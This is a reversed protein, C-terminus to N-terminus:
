LPVHEGACAPDRQYAEKLVRVIRPATRGDWLPPRIPTPRDHNHNANELTELASLLLQQPDCGVVRNTGVSVTVPRETNERYTLCPVGLFTTEEQVGGSDTIVMVAHRILDLFDLYSAPPMMWLGRSPLLGGKWVRVASPGAAEGAAEINRATRPHAPFVVPIREAIEAIAELTRKLEDGHDVNSPRHLTLVVYPKARLGLESRLSSPRAIKLARVLSDIMLNGVFFVKDPAVGENALNRNASEETTFLLDSLADTLIRNIEEPMSRDFSRLGAEVHAIPIREKAAVLACAITSNVDGAVLVMDPRDQQVLDGFKRMIEATQAYHPGSGVDLNYDPPPVGLQDFFVQSMSYDYHQGTHVLVPELEDHRRLEALLPAVKMMNPRAGVISMIKLRNNDM